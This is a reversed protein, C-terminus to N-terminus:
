QVAGSNSGGGSKQDTNLVVIDDDDYPYQLAAIQKLALRAAVHIREM